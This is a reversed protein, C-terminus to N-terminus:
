GYVNESKQRKTQKKSVPVINEVREPYKSVTLFVTEFQKLVEWKIKFLIDLKMKRLKQRVLNCEPKLPVRHVVIDTNLGPMDQYSWAFIDSYERLLNIIKKRTESTMSTGIKVEKSEEQSGLNIVEVLEQHPGLVKDEEEVLRLLESSIRGANEDDSEKDSEM